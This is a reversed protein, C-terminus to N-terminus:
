DANSLRSLVSQCMSLTNNHLELVPQISGDKDRQYGGALATVVPIKLKHAVEYVYLDRRAMQDTTLVGGLPDDIHSDVGANYIIIDCGEFSYIIQRLQTLWEEAGEGSSIHQAGFSYHQIFNLGHHEILEQTGDGYHRDLDVIGVRKAGKEHALVAALVLTNFTCFGGGSSFGAHHAGSVPAFTPHGTKLAEMTASVMSGAVWPLAQAVQASRNGFGNAITCDLVGDVYSKSHVKKLAARSSPKFSCIKISVGMQLWSKVVQAPKQASPSFSSNEKVSQREDYFVKIM